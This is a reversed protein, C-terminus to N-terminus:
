LKFRGVLGQLRESQQSLTAAAQAMQGAGQSSERTVTNITEVAKSIQQSAASQQEAAAAISQVMSALGVSSQNIRGLAQGANNALEVGKTVRQSGSEILQV